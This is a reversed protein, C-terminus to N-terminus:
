KIQTIYNALNEIEEDTLGIAMPIMMSSMPGIVESNRYKKLLNIITSKDKNKLTPGVIGEAKEGHCGVCKLYTEKGKSISGNALVNGSLVLILLFINLKKM